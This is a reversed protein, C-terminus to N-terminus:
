DPKILGNKRSDEFAAELRARKAASHAYYDAAPDFLNIGLELLEEGIVEMDMLETTARQKPTLGNWENDFGFRLIKHCEKAVENAEEALCNLLYIIRKKKDRDSLPQNPLPKAM